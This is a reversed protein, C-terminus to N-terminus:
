GLRACRSPTRCARRSGVDPSFHLDDVVDVMGCAHVMRVAVAKLDDPIASLDTEARITAFSRRYIEDGDKLYDLRETM